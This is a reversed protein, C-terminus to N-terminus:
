RSRAPLLVFLRSPELWGRGRAIPRRRRMHRTWLRRRRRMRVRLLRMLVFLRSMDLGGRRHALARVRRLHFSARLRRWRQLRLPLLEFLRSSELGGRRRHALARVRRLHFSARLRRWRQLRLPLLEFLRSSELGGRRRHALARVRRLHLRTRLRRRRHTRVRRQLLRPAELIPHRRVVPCRRLWLSRLRRLAVRQLLRSAYKDFVLVQERRRQSGCRTTFARPKLQLKRGSITISAIRRPRSLRQWRCHSSAGSPRVPCLGCQGANHDASRSGYGHTIRRGPHLQKRATLLRRHQQRRCRGVDAISRACRSGCCRWSSRRQGREVGSGRRARLSGRRGGDTPGGSLAACWRSLELGTRAARVTARYLCGDVSSGPCRGCTLDLTRRGCPRRLTRHRRWLMAIACFAAASHRRAAAGGIRTPRADRQVASRGIRARYADRRVVSREASDIRAALFDGRRFFMACCAGAFLACLGRWRVSSGRAFLARLRMRVACPRRVCLGSREGM